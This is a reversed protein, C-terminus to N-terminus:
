MLIVFDLFPVMLGGDIQSLMPIRVIPHTWALENEYRFANLHAIGVGFPKDVQIKIMNSPKSEEINYTVDKADSIWHTQTKFYSTAMTRTHM